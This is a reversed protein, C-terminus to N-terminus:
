VLALAENFVLTSLDAGKGSLNSWARSDSTLKRGRTPVRKQVWNTVANAALWATPELSLDKRESDFTNSWASIAYLAQERNTHEKANSPNAVVPEEMKGWMDLWFSKIQQSTLPTYALATVQEEFTDRTKAFRTLATRMASVKDSLEGNHTVKYMKGSNGKLAMRLTNACVIRVSTPLASLALTGDHSNLLAMYESVGDDGGRVYFTSAKLLVVTKKGNGMSFASEVKVDNGLAYCLDFVEENQVIKYQDSQISLIKKNDERILAVMDEGFIEQGQFSSYVPAKHVSWGLGAINMAETPSMADGVYKGLGHWTQQAFVAGDEAEIEHAM